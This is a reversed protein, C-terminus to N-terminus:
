GNPQWLGRTGSREAIFAINKTSRVPQWHFARFAVPIHELVEAYRRNRSHSSAPTNSSNQRKPNSAACAKSSMSQDHNDSSPAM